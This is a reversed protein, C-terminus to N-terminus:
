RRVFRAIGRRRAAPRRESTWARGDWWQVHGRSTPSPYWGPEPAEPRALDSWEPLDPVIRRVRARPAVRVPTAAPEADEPEHEGAEGEGTIAYGTAAFDSVAVDPSPPYPQTPAISGAAPQGDRTWNEFWALAYAEHGRLQAILPSPLHVGERSLGDDALLSRHFRDFDIM